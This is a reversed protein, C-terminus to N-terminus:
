SVEMFFDAEHGIPAPTIEGPIFGDIDRAFERAMDHDDAFYVQVARGNRVVFYTNM